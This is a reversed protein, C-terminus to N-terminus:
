YRPARIQLPVPRPQRCGALAGGRESHHRTATQCPPPRSHPSTCPVLCDTWEAPATDTLWLPQLMCPLTPRPHAFGVVDAASVMGANPPFFSRASARRRPAARAVARSAARAPALAAATGAEARRLSGMAGLRPPKGGEGAAAPGAATQLRRVGNWRAVAAASTPTLQQATTGARGLRELRRPSSPRRWHWRPAARLLTMGSSPPNSVPAARKAHCRAASGCVPRPCSQWRTQRPGASARM